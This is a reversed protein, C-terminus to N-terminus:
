GIAQWNDMNYAARIIRGIKPQMYFYHVFFTPGGSNGVGLSRKSVNACCLLSSGGKVSSDLLRKIVQLFLSDTPLLSYM